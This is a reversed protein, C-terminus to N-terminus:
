QNLLLSKYSKKVKGLLSRVIIILTQLGKKKDIKYRQIVIDIAKSISLKALSLLQGDYNELFQEKNIVKLLKEALIFEKCRVYLQNANIAQSLSHERKIYNYVYQSYLGVQKAEKAVQLSFLLDNCIITESYRIRFKNVFDKRIMKNWPEYLRFLYDEDYAKVIVSEELINTYSTNSAAFRIPFARKESSKEDQIYCPWAIVEYNTKVALNLLNTLAQTEYTDDADAFLLWEGKAREIGINRAHGAGKGTKDFYIEINANDSGPFHKFDVFAPDSNDDVIVVQIDERQPISDLCRQLLNPINKHPIIISFTM